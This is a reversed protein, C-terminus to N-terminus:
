LYSPVHVVVHHLRLVDLPVEVRTAHLRVDDVPRPHDEQPIPGLRLWRLRQVCALGALPRAPVLEAEAGEPALDLVAHRVRPPERVHGVEVEALGPRDDLSLPAPLPLGCAHGPSHATGM